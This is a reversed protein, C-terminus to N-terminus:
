QYFWYGLVLRDGAFALETAPGTILAAPIDFFVESFEGEGGELTFQTEGAAEGNVFLRVTQRPQFHLGQGDLKSEMRVISCVASLTTRMVVRMTRGPQTRVRFTDWGLVPMGVETVPTDGIRGTAVFPNVKTQPLRINVRYACRLEDELFGVNLQDALEMDRVADQAAPSLPRLTQPKMTDWNAKRFVLGTPDGMADFDAHAEEGLLPQIFAHEQQLGTLLWFDFRLSPRERLTELNCLFSQPQGFGTSALGGIRIVRREPMFYALGTNSMMGVRRAPPLQAHVTKTFNVKSQTFACGAAQMSLFYPLTVLQFGALVLAAVATVPRAPFREALLAVGGAAYLIWVPVIWGMYRDTNLIQWGSFAIMVLSAVCSLLIWAEEWRTDGKRWDRAAIGTLALLGGAIPLLFSQRFNTAAGFCVERVIQMLDQVSHILAGALPYLNFYSKNAVSEFQPAGTLFVNLMAVAVTAVLGGAAAGLLRGASKRDAFLAALGLATLIGTLVVGEPRAWVALFLAVAALATRRHAAAAMAGTSLMMFLGMDTQGFATASTHGSLIALAAALAATSPFLRRALAFFFVLFALYFVADLLFGATLLSDGRMGLACPIALVAPYLHSTSGTSPAEGPGYCYPQGDAMARAYQMYMLTDPQPPATHGGTGFSSAVFYYLAAVLVGALLVLIYAHAGTGNGNSSQKM